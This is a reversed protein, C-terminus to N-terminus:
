EFVEAVLRQVAITPSVVRLTDIALKYGPEVSDCSGAFSDSGLSMNASAINYTARHANVWDLGSLVDSDVAGIANSNTAKSVVKVAVINAGPAVGSPAISPGNAGAAIGAVHTGHECQNLVCPLASNNGETHHTNGGPDGGSCLGVSGLTGFTRMAEATGRDKENM